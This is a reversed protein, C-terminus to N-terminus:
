ASDTTEDPAPTDEGSAQVDDEGAPEDPVELEESVEEAVAPETAQPDEVESDEADAVESDQADAVESDEPEAGGVKVEDVAVEGDVAVDDARSWQVDGDAVDASSDPVVTDSEVTEAEDAPVDVAGLPKLPAFFKARTPESYDSRDYALEIFWRLPADLAAIIPDPLWAVPMLLPVPYTKVVYYHTNSDADFQYYDPDGTAKAAELDAATLEFQTNGHVLLIGVVANAVAIPNWLYTPFDAWGDYQRVVDYTLDGNDPTAGSFTFDVIPVTIGKFRQMIGGNPRSPNGVLIYTNGTHTAKYRSAVVAGHSFGFIMDGAALQEAELSEVGQSVAKNFTPDAFGGRSFPWFGANYLIQEYPSDPPTVETGDIVVDIFHEFEQETPLYGINTGRVYHLSATLQPSVSLTPAVGIAAAGALAVGATAAATVAAKIGCKGM